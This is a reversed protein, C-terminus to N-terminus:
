VQKYVEKGKIIEAILKLGRKNARDYSIHVIKSRELIIKDFPLETKIVWDFLQKPTKGKVFIDVAKGLCHQSNSAPTVVGSIKNNLAVSRFGSTIVVEGFGYWIPELIKLCLWKLAEIQEANPTNDLKLTEATTSRTLDELKFNKSLQM